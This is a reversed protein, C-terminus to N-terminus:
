PADAGATRPVIDFVIPAHEAKYRLTCSSANIFTTAGHRTVGYGEHIHGSVVFQPKVRECAARLAECGVRMGLFTRDGFGQPPSHTLVVDTDFPIRRWVETLEPGRDKGYAMRMGPIHPQAPSAFLKVGLVTTVESAVDQGVLTCNTLLSAGRGKTSSDVGKGDYAPDVVLDHNGGIVLIRKYRPALEGLWVNFEAVEALTGNRTFDGAHLLVDGPPLVALDRHRNHTDSICVFRVAGERADKFTLSEHSPGAGWGLAGHLADAIGTLSFLAAGTPEQSPVEAM